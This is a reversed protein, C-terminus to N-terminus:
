RIAKSSYFNNRVVQKIIKKMGDKLFNSDVTEQMQRQFNEM